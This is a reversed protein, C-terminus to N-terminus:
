DKIEFDTITIALSEIHGKALNKHFHKELCQIFENADSGKLCVEVNKFCKNVSDWRNHVTYKIYMANVRLRLLKINVM